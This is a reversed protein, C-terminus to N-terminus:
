PTWIYDSEVDNDALPAFTVHGDVFAMNGNQGHWFGPAKHMSTDLYGVTRTPEGVGGLRRGALGKGSPLPSADGSWPHGIANFTYSNGVWDFHTHGDAWEWGGEDHPCRFGEFNNDMYRNLPRPVIRNFLGAQRTPDGGYEPLNIYNGTEQGGYVYWDMGNENLNADRWYFVEDADNLYVHTATIINKLQSACTVRRALLRASSLAPLLIGILIAIISIVVLLEILSFGAAPRPRPQDRAPVPM